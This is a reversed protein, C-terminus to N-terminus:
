RITFILLFDEISSGKCQTLFRVFKYLNIKIWTYKQPPNTTVDLQSNETYTTQIQIHKHYGNYSLNEPFM